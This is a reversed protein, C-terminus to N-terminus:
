GARLGGAHPQGCAHCSSVDENFHGGGCAACIRVAQTSLKAENNAGNKNELTILRAERGDKLKGFSAVVPEKSMATTATLALAASCVIATLSTTQM